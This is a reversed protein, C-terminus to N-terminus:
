VVSKRDRLKRFASNESKRVDSVSVSGLLDCVERASRSVGDDLGHRLRLIDREHPSLETAMANELCQRLLSMEVQEEPLLESSKITNVLLAEGPNDSNGSKGAQTPLLGNPVPADLSVLPETSRLIFELRNPTLGLEAAAADMPLAEGGTEKYHEKVLKQYNGKTQHYNTPVRMCGTAAAHFCQRISNTIWYTAYTGFKLNREYDFRDAATALGIIGEQIAEDLSPRTSSGGYLTLQNSPNNAVSSQRCWKKAISMVLRINSSILTDRAMAGEILIRSLEKRGGSIGLKTKIDEDTLMVEPSSMIEDDPMFDIDTRMSTTTFLGEVYEETSLIRIRSLDEGNRKVEELSGVDLGHISLGELDEDYDEVRDSYDEFLLDQTMRRRYEQEKVIKEFQQAHKEEIVAAITEKASIARRIKKGLAQEEEMTLLEHDLFALYGKLRQQEVSETGRTGQRAQRVAKRVPKQPRPNSKMRGGSSASESTARSALLRRSVAASGFTRDLPRQQFATGGACWLACLLWWSTKQAPLAHHSGRQRHHNKMKCAM